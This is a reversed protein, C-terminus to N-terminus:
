KKGERQNAITQFKQMHEVVGWDKLLRAFAGTLFNIQSQVSLIDGTSIAEDAAHAIRQACDAISAAGHGITGLQRRHEGRLQQRREAFARSPPSPKL